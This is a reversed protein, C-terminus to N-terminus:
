QISINKNTSALLQTSHDIIHLLIKGHCFKLEMAVTKQCYSTTPSGEIPRPLVRRYVLCTSCNETVNKIEKKLDTNDCWSTGTNNLLRILREPSPHTFQCHLKLAITQNSQEHTNNITVTIASNNERDISNIAQEASTLPIAYHSSITTISPINECFANITNNQFKINMEAKKM